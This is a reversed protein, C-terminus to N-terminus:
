WVPCDYRAKSPRSVAVEAFHVVISENDILAVGYGPAEFSVPAIGRTVFDLAIQHNTGRVGTFPSGSQRLTRTARSFAPDDYVNQPILNHDTM